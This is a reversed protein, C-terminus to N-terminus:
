IDFIRCYLGVDFSPDCVSIFTLSGPRRCLYARHKPTNRLSFENGPYQETLERLLKQALPDQKERRAAFALVIKAFPKLNRGNEATKALQEM